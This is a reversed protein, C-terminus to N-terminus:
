SDSEQESEQDLHEFVSLLNKPGGGMLSSTTVRGEGDGDVDHDYDDDGDDSLDCAPSVLPSFTASHRTMSKENMPLCAHTDRTPTSSLFKHRRSSSCGPHTPSSSPSTIRAPSCSATTSSDADRTVISSWFRSFFSWVTLLVASWMDQVRSRLAVLSQSRRRTRAISALVLHDTLLQTATPRKDPEPDMMWTLVQKLNDSIHCSDTFHHFPISGSRLVHFGDGSSPVELDCALELFSIGASFIDIATSVRGQMLEAAMYKADGDM